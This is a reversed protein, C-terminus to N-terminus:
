YLYDYKEKWNIALAYEIILREKYTLKSFQRVCQAVFSSKCTPGLIVIRRKRHYKHQIIHTLAVENEDFNMCNDLPHSSCEEILPSSPQDYCEDTWIACLPITHSTVVQSIYFKTLYFLQEYLFHTDAEWNTKWFSFNQCFFDDEKYRFFYFADEMIPLPFRQVIWLKKRFYRYSSSRGIEAFISM